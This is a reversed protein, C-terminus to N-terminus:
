PAEGKNFRDWFDKRLSALDAHCERLDIDDQTGIDSAYRSVLYRIAAAGPLRADWIRADEDEALYNRNVNIEVLPYDGDCYCEPFIVSVGSGIARNLGERNDLLIEAWHNRQAGQLYLYGDGYPDDPRPRILGAIANNKEMEIFANRYWELVRQNHAKARELREARERARRHTRAERTERLLARGPSTPGDPVKLQRIHGIGLKDAHAQAFSMVEALADIRFWETYGDGRPMDYRWHRFLYQLVREVKLANGDRIEIEYSRETDIEVPLTKARSHPHHSIGIKFASQKKNVLIYLISM